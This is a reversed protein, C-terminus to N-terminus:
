LYNLAPVQVIIILKLQKFSKFSQWQKRTGKTKLYYRKLILPRKLNFSRVEM